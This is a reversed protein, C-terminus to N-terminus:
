WGAAAGGKRPDAAGNLSGDPTACSRARVAGGGPADVDQYGLRRLAWRENLPRHRQELM